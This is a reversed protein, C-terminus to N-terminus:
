LRLSEDDPWNWDEVSKGAYDPHADHAGALIVLIESLTAWTAGAAEDCDDRRYADSASRWREIIERKAAVDRLVRAPDNRAIFRSVGADNTVVHADWHHGEGPQREPLNATLDVTGSWIEIWDPGFDEAAQRAYADDDNLLATLFEVIDM